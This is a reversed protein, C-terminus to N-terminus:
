YNLVRSRISLIREKTQEIRFRLRNAEALHKGLGLTSNYSEFLEIIEEKAELSKKLDIYESIASFYKDRSYSDLALVQANTLKVMGSTKLTTERSM